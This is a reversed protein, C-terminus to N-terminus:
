GFFNSMRSRVSCGGGWSAGVVGGGGGCVCEVCGGVCMMDDLPEAEPPEELSLL